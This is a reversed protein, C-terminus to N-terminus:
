LFCLEFSNKETRLYQDYLARKNDNTLIDYAKVVQYYLEEVEKNIKDPHFKLIIRKYSKRIEDTSNTETVNLLDYLNYPLENFNNM